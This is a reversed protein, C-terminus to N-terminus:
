FDHFRRESRNLRLPVGLAERFLPLYKEDVTARSLRVMRDAVYLGTNYLRPTTHDAVVQALVDRGLDPAAVRLGFDTIRPADPALDSALCEVRLCDDREDLRVYCTWVAPLERLRELAMRARKREVGAREFAQTVAGSGNVFQVARDGFAEWGVLIPTMQGPGRTWRALAEGDSPLGSDTGTQREPKTLEGKGLLFAHALLHGRTTKSLAILRVQHRGCAEILDLYRELVTLPIDAHDPAEYPYILHGLQAYLSGDLYLVGGQCREVERQALGIELARTLLGRLRERSDSSLTDRQLVVSTATAEQGAGALLAHSVVLFTGNDFSRMADSGDVAYCAAPEAAGDPLTAHWGAQIASRLVNEVEDCPTDSFLRLFAERQGNLVELYQAIFDPM